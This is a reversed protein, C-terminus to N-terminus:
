SARRAADGADRILDELQDVEGDLVRAKLAMAEARQIHDAAGAALIASRSQKSKIIEEARQQTIEQGQWFVKVARKKWPSDGFLEFIDAM